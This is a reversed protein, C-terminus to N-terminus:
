RGPPAARAAVNLIRKGSRRRWARAGNVGGDFHALSLDAPFRHASTAGDRGPTPRDAAPQHRNM